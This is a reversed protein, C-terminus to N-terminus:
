ATNRLLRGALFADKYQHWRNIDWTHVDCGQGKLAEITRDFEMVRAARAGGGPALQKFDFIQFQADAEPGSYHAIVVRDDLPPVCYM